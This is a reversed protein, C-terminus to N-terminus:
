QRPRASFGGISAMIGMTNDAKDDVKSRLSDIDTADARGSTFKLEVLYTTGELTLSGDTQRGASVYPRRNQIECFNLLDYLWDQFAYGGAQTGVKPQLAELRGQL